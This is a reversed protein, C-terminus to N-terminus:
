KLFAFQKVARSDTPRNTKSSQLLTIKLSYYLLKTTTQVKINRNSQSPTLTTTYKLRTRYSTYFTNFQPYYNKKNNSKNRNREWKKKPQSVKQKDPQQNIKFNKSTQRSISVKNLLKLTNMSIVQQKSLNKIKFKHLNTGLKPKIKTQKM